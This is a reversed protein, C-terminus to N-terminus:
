VIVERTNGDIYICASGINRCIVGGDDGVDGGRGNIMDSSTVDESTSRSTLLLQYIFFVRAAVAVTTSGAVNGRIWYLPLYGISVLRRKNHILIYEHPLVDDGLVGRGRHCMGGHRASSPILRLARSTPHREIFYSNIKASTHIFKIYSSYSNYEDYFYSHTTSVM